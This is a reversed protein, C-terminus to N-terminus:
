PNFVVLQAQVWTLFEQESIPDPIRLLEPWVRISMFEWEKVMAKIKPEVPVYKTADVLCSVANCVYSFHVEGAAYSRAVEILTKLEPLM